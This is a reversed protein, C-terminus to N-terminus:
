PYTGPPACADNFCVSQSERAQFLRQEAARYPALDQNTLQYLALDTTEAVQTGLHQPGIYDVSKLIVAYDPPQQLSQVWINQAKLKNDVIIGSQFYAPYREFAYMSFYAFTWETDSGAYPGTTPWIGARPIAVLLLRPPHQDLYSLVPSLDYNQQLPPESFIRTLIHTYPLGAGFVVQSAFWIGVLGTAFSRARSLRRATLAQPAVALALVFYPYIYTFAKGAARTNHLPLYLVAAIVLGAAFMSFIVRGAASSSISKQLLQLGALVLIVVLALAWAQGGIQALLLGIRPLFSGVTSIPVGMAGAVKDYKMIQAVYSPYQAEGGSNVILYWANRFVYDVQGTIALAGVALSGTVGHLAVARWQFERQWLLLGYYVVFGMALIPILPFYFAAVVAAAVALLIRPGSFARPMGQELRIWAYIALMLVPLTNIEYGADTELVFRAWFGLAVVAAALWSMWRPLKLLDGMALSLFFAMAYALLYNAYYFLNVPLGTVESAWSLTIVKSLGIPLGVTRASFIATPSVVALQRIGDLNRASMNVAGLVTQWSAVRLQEALSMQLFLDSPNSRYVVYNIGRVLLPGCLVLLVLASVGLTAWVQRSPAEFTPRPRRLWYLAASSLSILLLAVTVPWSWSQAPGVYRVLPFGLLGILAYGVAPAIAAVHALRREGAPLAWTSPGFGIGALLLLCVFFGFVEKIM